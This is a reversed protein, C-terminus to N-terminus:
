SAKLCGPGPKKYPNMESIKVKNLQQCQFMYTHLTVTVTVTVSYQNVKEIVPEIGQEEHIISGYHSLASSFQNCM